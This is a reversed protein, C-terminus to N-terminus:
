VMYLVKPDRMLRSQALQSESQAMTVWNRARISETNLQFQSTFYSAAASYVVAQVALPAIDVDDADIALAPWKRAYKVILYKKSAVVQSQLNNQSLYGLERIILRRHTVDTWSGGAELTTTVANVFSKEFSWGDFCPIRYTTLNASENIDKSGAFVEFVHECDAPLLYWGQAAVVLASYNVVQYDYPWLLELGDNIYQLEQAQTMLTDVTYASLANRM